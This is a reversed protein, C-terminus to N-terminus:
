SGTHAVALRCRRHCPECGPFTETGRLLRDSPGSGSLRTEGHRHKLTTTINVPPPFNVTSILYHFCGTQNHSPTWSCLQGTALVHSISENFMSVLM